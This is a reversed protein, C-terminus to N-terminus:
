ATPWSERGTVVLTQEHTLSGVLGLMQKALLANRAAAGAHCNNFFVLCTDSKAALTRVHGLLGTLEANSYLYDYRESRSAAFWRRNRGHFRFYAPEATMRSEFPMLRPLRPEDVVCFALGTEQLLRFTSDRLWARNRFEVVVRVDPILEPLRRIYDHTAGAPYFFVPLQVLVCGLRSADVLPQIGARFQGFAASPDLLVRREHGAWIAHTMSQHTRVVFTFDPGVRALMAALARPVPMSYYTYNLEVTDFGLARHYYELMHTKPLGVPYVPGRWDDFSFGSTGVM